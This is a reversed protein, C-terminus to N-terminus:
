LGLADAIMAWDVLKFNQDRESTPNGDDQVVLLGQPYGPLPASVIDLGDTHTVADVSGDSSATM